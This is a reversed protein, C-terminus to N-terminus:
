AVKKPLIKEKKQELWGQGARILAYAVVGLTQVVVVFANYPKPDGPRREVYRLGNYYRSM